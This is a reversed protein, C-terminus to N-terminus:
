QHKFNLKLLLPKMRHHINYFKKDQGDTETVTTGDSLPWHAPPWVICSSCHLQIHHGVRSLCRRRIDLWLWTSRSQPENWILKWLLQEEEEHSLAFKLLSFVGASPHTHMTLQTSLKALMFLLATLNFPPSGGAGWPHPAVGMWQM